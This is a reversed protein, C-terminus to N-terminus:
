LSSSWLAPGTHTGATCAMCPGGDPGTYGTNCLCASLSVSIAPSVSASLCTSCAALDTTAKYKGAVCATCGHCPRARQHAWYLRAPVQMPTPQHEWYVCHKIRCSVIYVCSFGHLEQLHGVRLARLRRRTRHLWSCM